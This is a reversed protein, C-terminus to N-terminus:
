PDQLALILNLTTTRLVKQYWWALYVLVGCFVTCTWALVETVHALRSMADQTINFGVLTRRQSAPRLWTGVPTQCLCNNYVGFIQFISGPLIIVVSSIVAMAPLFVLFIFWVSVNLIRRTVSNKPPSSTGAPAVSPSRWPQCSLVELYSQKTASLYLSILTLYVQAALYIAYTLSRCGMRPSIIYYAWCYAIVTPFLLLALSLVTVLALRRWNLELSQRLWAHRQVADSAEVWRRKSHGRTWVSVPHLEDEYYDKLLVWWKRQAANSATASAILVSVSSPNNGALLLASVTAMLLLLMWFTAFPVWNAGIASERNIGLANYIFNGLFFVAPIGVWTGFATQSNMISKLRSQLEARNWNAPMLANRVLPRPRVDMDFNGCLLTVILDAREARDLRFNTTGPAMKQLEVVAVLYDLVAEMVASFLAPGAISMVCTIWIIMDLSAVIFVAILSLTLIPVSRLGFTPRGRSDFFADSLDLHWRRPINMSFIIVPIVFQFLVLAVVDLHFPSWGPCYTQCWSYPVYGLTIGNGLPVLKVVAAACQSSSVGGAARQFLLGAM